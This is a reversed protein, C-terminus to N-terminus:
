SKSNRLNGVFQSLERPIFRPKHGMKEQYGPLSELYSEENRLRAWILTANILSGILATMYATHIMPICFVEIMVVLYNPHRIYHYPGSDVIKQEPHHIIRVNWSDQMTSLVWLRGLLAFMWCLLMLGGWVKYYPRELIYVEAVCAILWGTHFVVMAPYVWEQVPYAQHETKASQYHHQSLRVEYLRSLAIGLIFLAYLWM